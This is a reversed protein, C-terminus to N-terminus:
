GVTASVAPCEQQAFLRRYHQTVLESVLLDSIYIYGNPLLRLKMQRSCTSKWLILSTYMMKMKAIHWFSTHATQNTQQLETSIRELFDGYWKPRILSLVSHGTINEHARYLKMECNPFHEVLLYRSSSQIRLGNTLSVTSSYSM